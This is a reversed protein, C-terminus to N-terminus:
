VACEGEGRELKYLNTREWDIYLDSGPAAEQASKEAAIAVETLEELGVRDLFQNFREGENLRNGKYYTVIDKLV